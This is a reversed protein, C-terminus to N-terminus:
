EPSASSGGNWLVGPGRSRGRHSGTRHFLFLALLTSESIDCAECVNISGAIDFLKDAFLVLAFIQQAKDGATADVIALTRQDTPQQVVGL